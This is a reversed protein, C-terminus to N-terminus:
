FDHGRFGMDAMVLLAAFPFWTFFEWKSFGIKFVESKKRRSSLLLWDSDKKTTVTANADISHFPYWREECLIFTEFFDIKFIMTGQALTPIVIKQFIMIRWHFIIAIVRPNCKIRYVCVDSHCCFLIWISQQEWRQSFFIGFNEFVLVHDWSFDHSNNCFESRSRVPTHWGVSRRM